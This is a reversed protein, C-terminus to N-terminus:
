PLNCICPGKGLERYFSPDKCLHIYQFGKEIAHNYVSKLVYYRIEKEYKVRKSTVEKIEGGKVKKEKHIEEIEFVDKYNNPLKIQMFSNLQVYGRYTGLVLAYNDIESIEDIVNLIPDLNIDTKQIKIGKLYTQEFAEDINIPDYRWVIRYGKNRLMQGAEKREEYSATGKQCKEIGAPNDISFGFIADYGINEPVENVNCSKTMFLLKQQHKRALELLEPIYSPILPSLALVDNKEGTNIRRKNGKNKLIKMENHLKEFNLYISCFPRIRATARLFCWICDHPCGFGLAAEIFGPCEESKPFKKIFNNSYSTLYVIKKGFDIKDPLYTWQLNGSFHNLITTADIGGKKNDLKIIDVKLSDNNISELQTHILSVEKETDPFQIILYSQDKNLKNKIYEYLFQRGYNDKMIQSDIACYRLNSISSVGLM